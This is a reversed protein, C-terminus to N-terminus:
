VSGESPSKRGRRKAAIHRRLGDEVQDTFTEGTERVSDAEAVLERAVKVSKLVHDKPKRGIM